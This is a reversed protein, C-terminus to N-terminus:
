HRKIIKIILDTNAAEDAERFGMFHYVDRCKNSVDFYVSLGSFSFTFREEADRM